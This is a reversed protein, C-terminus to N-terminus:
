GAPQAKRTKRRRGRRAPTWEDDYDVDLVDELDDDLKMQDLYRELRRRAVNARSNQTLWEYGAEEADLEDEDYWQRRARPIALLDDGDCTREYGRSKHARSRVRRTRNGDDDFHM